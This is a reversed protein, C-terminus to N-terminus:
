FDFKVTILQEITMRAEEVESELKAIKKKDIEANKNLKEFCSFHEEFDEKLYDKKCNQCPKRNLVPCTKKHQAFNAYNVSMKCEQAPCILKYQSLVTVMLRSFKATFNGTRCLPCDRSNKKVNNFCEKCFHGDCCDLRMPDEFISCCISCIIEEQLNDVVGNRESNDIEAEFGM